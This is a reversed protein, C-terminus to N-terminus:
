VAFGAPLPVPSAPALLFHGTANPVVAALTVRPRPRGDRDPTLDVVRAVTADSAPSDSAASAAHPDVGGGSGGSGTATVGVMSSDRVVGGSGSTGSTQGNVPTSVSSTAWRGATATFISFVLEARGCL